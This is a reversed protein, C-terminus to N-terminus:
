WKQQVKRMGSTGLKRRTDNRKQTQLIEKESEKLAPRSGAFERPKRKGSFTKIEGENRFSM